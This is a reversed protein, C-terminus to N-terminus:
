PSTAIQRESQQSVPKMSAESAVNYLMAVSLSALLLAKTFM